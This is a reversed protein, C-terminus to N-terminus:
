RRSRQETTTDSSAIVADAQKIVKSNNETDIRIAEALRDAEIAKRAFENSEWQRARNRVADEEVRAVRYDLM